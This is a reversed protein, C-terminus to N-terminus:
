VAQALATERNACRRNEAGTLGDDARGGCCRLAGTLAGEATAIVALVILLVILIM